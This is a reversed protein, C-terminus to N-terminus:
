GEDIWIDGMKPNSPATFDDTHTTVRDLFQGSGKHVSDLEGIRGWQGRVESMETRQKVSLAAVNGPELGSITTQTLEYTYNYVKNVNSTILEVNTQFNANLVNVAINCDKFYQPGNTAAGSVVLSSNTGLALAINVNEYTCGAPISSASNSAFSIASMVKSTTLGRFYCFQIYYYTFGISVLMNNAITKDSTFYSSYFTYYGSGSQIFNTTSNDTRHFWCSTFYRNTFGGGHIPIASGDATFKIYKFYHVISSPNFAIARGVTSVIESTLDVIQYEDGINAISISGVITVTNATNSFIPLTNGTGDIQDAVGPFYVFKGKLEDTSWSKNSDTFAAHTSRTGATTGTIVGSDYITKAGQFLMYANPTASAKGGVSLQSNTSGDAAYTGSALNITVDDAFTAGVQSYAYSPTKYADTGTGFGKDQTDSGLVPDVYVTTTGFAYLPVWVLSVADYQMLVSRGTPTHLFWQGGAPSTPLVPGTDCSMAIARYGNFDIDTEILDFSSPETLSFSDLYVTTDSAVLAGFTNSGSTTSLYSQLKYWGSGVSTFSTTLAVGNHSLNLVTSDVTGGTYAYCTLIHQGSKPPTLAQNFDYASSGSYVKASANGLYKISTDRTVSHDSFHTGEYEGDTGRAFITFNDLTNGSYTSFLGHKTNNIIQTDSITSTSGVQANNYYLSYSTGDKIVRLTAGASYTIAASIVDTYTGNVCKTLKANGYGDLYGIVFSGPTTQSDLNSVVGAQTGKVGNQTINVDLIYDATSTTVSSILESLTLEKVTFDDFYISSSIASVRKFTITTNGTPFLATNTYQTYTTGPDLSVGNAYMPTSIAGTKGSGSTKMWVSMSIWKQSALVVTQTITALNNSADVDLRACYTGSHQNTNDRNVTSTGAITETWSTLDTASAWNELGGDILLESGLTVPTNVASNSSIAWTSGSWALPTIAQADPGTSETSGLSGNARTFTDHAIPSPLWLDTPIRLNDTISTQQPCAGPYLTATNGFTSYWLLSWNTASGGKVFMYYGASRLVFSFYYNTAPSLSFGTSIAAASELANIASGTNRFYMAGNNSPNGTQSSSFGYIQNGTTLSLEGLLLKGANRTTSPYYLVPDGTGGSGTTTLKGSAISLLNGADVVTRVGGTPEASTGNIAGAARDTIFRDYLLYDRETWNSLDVEFDPNQILNTTSPNNIAGLNQIQFGNFDIDGNIVVDGVGHSHMLPEGLLKDFTVGM